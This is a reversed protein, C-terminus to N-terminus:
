IFSILISSSFIGHITPTYARDTARENMFRRWCKHNKQEIPTSSKEVFGDCINVGVTRKQIHM